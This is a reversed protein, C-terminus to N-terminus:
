HAHVPEDQITKLEKKTYEIVSKLIGELKMTPAFNIFRQIKSIDPVRRPMDEFGTEYAKDYSIYVPPISSGSM